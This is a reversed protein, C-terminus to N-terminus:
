RWRSRLYQLNLNAPDLVPVPVREAAPAAHVPREPEHARPPPARPIQVPFWARSGAAMPSLASFQEQPQGRSRAAPLFHLIRAAGASLMTSQPPRMVTGLAAGLAM